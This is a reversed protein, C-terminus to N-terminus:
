ASLLAVAKALRAVADKLTEEAYAYSIRFHNAIGFARGPIVVLGTSALIHACFDADSEIVTGDPTKRGILAECSPFLYFAGDPVLCEIGDIKDLADLMMDRRAQFALRREELHSRDGHLSAYAAAQSISSAGSTVQGQVTVMAKILAEPGLGWGLRWGTMSHAKSAGNVILLRDKLQPLATAFSTFPAFTIFEYIEDSMVWVHPHRELVAGLAVLEDHTYVMGSPNSPSNILVWKTAPTIAAELQEPTVKFSQDAGCTLIIPTGDFVSVIDSYSAWYPAPM